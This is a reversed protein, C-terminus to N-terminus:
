ESRIDEKLPEPYCTIRDLDVKELSRSLDHRNQLLLLWEPELNMAKGIKLAMVASLHTKRNLVRNVYVPTEGIDRALRYHTVSKRKMERKIEDGPHTPLVNAM